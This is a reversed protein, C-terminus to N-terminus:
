QGQQAPGHAPAPWQMHALKTVTTAIPLDGSAPLGKGSWAVEDWGGAM